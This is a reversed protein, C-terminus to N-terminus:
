EKDVGAKQAMELIDEWSLVFWKGTKESRIIPTLAPLGVTAEYKLGNTKDSITGVNERLILTRGPLIKGFNKM